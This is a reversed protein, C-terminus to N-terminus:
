KCNINENKIFEMIKKASVDFRYNEKQYENLEHPMNVLNQELHILIKELGEIDKSKFYVAQDMLVEPISAADSAVVPTGFALAEVPPLGFGEYLSPFVFCLAQKYIKSVYEDKVFGTIHIRSQTNYKELVEDMKWGRRGVLVLDYNVKDQVKSFAELLTILNKRPELTSLTMIYRAPLDYEKKVADYAIDHEALLGDYIASFAVEIKDKPYHLIEAIRGKSFESVTIIGDSASASFKCTAKLYFKQLKKLAEASDWPGMDHITNYIGKRRFLIPSTFAFFLYRDAKIKYMHFPLVIQYFLLKNNGHIIEAKVRKGDISNEFMTHIDDRFILIYTNKKDQELMKETICMAYREIGTIHYSLATLDIAIIM